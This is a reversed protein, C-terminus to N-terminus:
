FLLSGMQLSSDMIGGLDPPQFLHQQVPGARLQLIQHRLIQFPQQKVIDGIQLLGLPLVVGKRVTQSVLPHLHHVERVQHHAGEGRRLHALVQDALEQVLGPGQVLPGAAQQRVIKAAHRVLFHHGGHHGAHAFPLQANRAYM